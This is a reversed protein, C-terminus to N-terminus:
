GLLVNRVTFNGKRISESLNEEEIDVDIVIKLQEQIQEVTRGQNWLKVVEEILTM